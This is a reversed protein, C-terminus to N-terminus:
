RVERLRKHVILGQEAKEDWPLDSCIRTDRNCCSVCQTDRADIFQEVLGIGPAYREYARRLNILLDQDAQEVLWTDTLINGNIVTDLPAAAYRYDWFEYVTVFEGGVALERRDDFAANGDWSVGPRIPFVLKTFTLNDETLQARTANRTVTFSQSPQWPDTSNRRWTRLGRYVMEGDAGVFAEVLEEQVQSRATDYVVGRVTNFLVISDVDYIVPRNLEVPFYVQDEAVQIPEALEEKCATILLLLLSLLYISRM